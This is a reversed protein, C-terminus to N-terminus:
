PPENSIIITIPLFQLSFFTYFSKSRPYITAISRETPLLLTQSTFNKGKDMEIYPEFHPYYNRHQSACFTMYFNPELLLFTHPFFLLFIKGRTQDVYINGLIVDM